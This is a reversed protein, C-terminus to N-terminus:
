RTARVFSLLDPGISDDATNLHVAMSLHNHGRIQKFRPCIRDRKCLRIYLEASSSEISYPDFEASIVFTPVKRGDVLNIAARAPWKATDDGYYARSVKERRGRSIGYVGSFLIAGAVGPGDAPQIPEHYIYTAVHTGGASHGMLFIRKPDGGYRGANAKLWAVVAGIDEAGQPWKVNPVLRYNANVGLMGNRAFYTPVNGYMLGKAGRLEKDGRILGGGHVFVVVPMARAPRATPEFIDLRHKKDSGYAIDRTVKVGDRPAKEQLPLYLARTAILVDRGWAKGIERLKAHAAETEGGQASPLTLAAVAVLATTMAFTRFTM